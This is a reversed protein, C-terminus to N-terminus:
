VGGRRREQYQGYGKVPQAHPRPSSRLPAAPHAAPRVGTLPYARAGRHRSALAIIGAAACCLSKIEGGASRAPRGALQQTLAGRRARGGGHQRVAPAQTTVTALRSRIEQTQCLPGEPLGPLQTPNM